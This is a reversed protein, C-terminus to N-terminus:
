NFNWIARAIRWSGDTQRRVVNLFKGSAPRPAGNAPTLTGSFRGRAIGWDGFIQVEDVSGSCQYKTGKWEKEHWARVAQQGIADPEGPAMIVADSTFLRMKAEIDRAAEAKCWDEIPLRRIAADSQARVTPVVVLTAFVAAAVILRPNHAM